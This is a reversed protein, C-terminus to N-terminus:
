YWELVFLRVFSFFCFCVFLCFLFFLFFLIFCFLRISCFYFLVFFLILFLVCFLFLSFFRCNRSYRLCLCYLFWQYLGGHDALGPIIMTYTKDNNYISIYWLMSGPIHKPRPMFLSPKQKLNVMTLIHEM